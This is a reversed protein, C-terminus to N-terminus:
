CFILKQKKKVCFLMDNALKIAEQRDYDDPWDKVLEILRPAVQECEKVTLHGDCDSHDLLPIIPDNFKSFKINGGFGKMSRLNMNIEKALRERFANFGTYSWSATGPNFDLGM